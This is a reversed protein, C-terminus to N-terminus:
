AIGGLLVQLEHLKCMSCLMWRVVLPFMPGSIYFYIYFVYVCHTQIRGAVSLYISSIHGSVCLM